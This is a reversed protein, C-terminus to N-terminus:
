YGPSQPIKFHGGPSTTEELLAVHSPVCEPTCMIVLIPIRICFGNAQLLLKEDTGDCASFSTNSKEHISRKKHHRQFSLRVEYIHFM